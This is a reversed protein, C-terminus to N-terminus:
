FDIGVLIEFSRSSGPTEFFAMSGLAPFEQVTKSAAWKRFQAPKQVGRPFDSRMVSLLPLQRRIRREGRGSIISRM